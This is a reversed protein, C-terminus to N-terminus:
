RGKVLVLDNQTWNDHMHYLEELNKGAAFQATTLYLKGPKIVTDFQMVMKNSRTLYYPIEYALLAATKHTVEKLKLPGIGLESKFVYPNEAWYIQEGNAIKLIESTTKRYTMHKDNALMVPYYFTSLAFRLLVLFLLTSFTRHPVYKITYLAIIVSLFAFLISKFFIASIEKTYPAFPLVLFLLVFLCMGGIILKQIVAYFKEFKGTRVELFYALLTTIFPFFMYIYRNKLEGTFWYIPINCAIFILCFMLLRNEKVKAYFDKRFWFVVFVSWPLLLQILLLPFSIAGTITKILGSEVGSRQTAEKTLRVLLGVVDAQQAYVYFYGGSIAVLLLIGLIHQWYFLRKFERNYIFWGLLTLAQFALSPPGKTIVGLATCLYSTLFLLLYDKREYFFFICMVQLYVLLSYFLDIEGANISGYFFIDASTLFFLSALISTHGKFYKRSFLYHFLGTLLFSVLSPVRVVWEGFSHFLKFCLVILWNFLPPKNYYDWGNIKPVIYNGTLYMELAVIARRPEEARLEMMGSGYFLSLPLLVVILVILAKSSPKM